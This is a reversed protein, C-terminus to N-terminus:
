FPGYREFEMLVNSWFISELPEHGTQRGFASAREVKGPGLSISCTPWLSLWPSASQGTSAATHYIRHPVDLTHYMWHPIDQWCGTGRKKHNESVVFRPHPLFLSLSSQCFLLSWIPEREVRIDLYQSTQSTPNRLYELYKTWFPLYVPAPNIQFFSTM